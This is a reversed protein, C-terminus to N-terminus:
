HFRGAKMPIHASVRVPAMRKRQPAAHIVCLAPSAQPSSPGGPGNPNEGGGDLTVYNSNTTLIGVNESQISTQKGKVAAVIVQNGGPNINQLVIGQSSTGGKDAATLNLIVFSKTLTSGDIFIADGNVGNIAPSM